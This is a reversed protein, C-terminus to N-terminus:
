IIEVYRELYRSVWRVRRSGKFMEESKCHVSGSGVRVAQSAFVDCETDRAVVPLSPDLKQLEAILEAVTM